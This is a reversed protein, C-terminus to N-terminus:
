INALIWDTDLLYLTAASSVIKGRLHPMEVAFEIEAPSVIVLEGLSDVAFAFLSTKGRMLILKDSESNEPAAENWLKALNFVSIIKGRLNVIGSLKESVRPLPTLPLIPSVEAVDGSAVAYQKGRLFFSLYKEGVTGPEAFFDTTLLNNEDFKEM